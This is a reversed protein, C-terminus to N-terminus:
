DNNFGWETYSKDLGYATREWKKGRKVALKFAYGSNVFRVSVEKYGNRTAYQMAGLMTKSTDVHCGNSLVGFIKQKNM